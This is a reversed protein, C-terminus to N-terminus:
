HFFDLFSIDQMHQVRDFAAFGHRGSNQSHIAFRKISFEILVTQSTAAAKVDSTM